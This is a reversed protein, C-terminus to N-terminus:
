TTFLHSLTIIRLLIHLCVVPLTIVDSLVRISLRISQWCVDQVQNCLLWHANLQARAREPSVRCLHSCFSHGHSEWVPGWIPKSTWLVTELANLTKKFMCESIFQGAILQIRQLTSPCSLLCDFLWLSHIVSPSPTQENVCLRRWHWDSSDGTFSSLVRDGRQKQSKQALAM